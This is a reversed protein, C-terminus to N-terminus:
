VTESQNHHKRHCGRCLWKVELPKSYDDHHADVKEKGCIKCPKPILIGASIAKYTLNRVEIKFRHEANKRYKDRKRKREKSLFKPDSEKAKLRRAQAAERKCRNCFGSDKNEKVAGCRTCIPNRLGSGYPPLGKEARAKIRKESRRKQKGELYCKECVGWQRRQIECNCRICLVTKLTM